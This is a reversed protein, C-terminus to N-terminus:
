RNPAELANLWTRDGGEGQLKFQGVPIGLENEVVHRKVAESPAFLASEFQSGDKRILGGAAGEVM